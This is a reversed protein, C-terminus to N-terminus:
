NVSPRFNIGLKIYSSSDVKLDPMKIKGEKLRLSRLGGVGTELKFWLNKYIRQEGSLGFDWGSLEQNIQATATDIQWSSGTPSAGFRFFTDKTPAFLVAPWPMIASLSWKEDIQWFAGLYPLYSDEIGGVDFYAGFAWWIDDSYVHRGFLGGFTQWEWNSGQLSAKYGLPAIFGAVQTESNLQRLWGVPIAAQAVDFSEFGSTDSTIQSSNVWEGIFLVDRSTALIPLVAGQAFTTQDISITQQNDLNLNTDSYIKYEAYALPIFPANSEARQLVIKSQSFKVMMRDLFDDANAWSSLSVLLLLSLFNPPFPTKM